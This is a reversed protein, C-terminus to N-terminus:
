AKGGFFRDMVGWALKSEAEREEPTLMQPPDPPPRYPEPIVALPHVPEKTFGNRNVVWAVAVGVRLWEAQQRATAMAALERLSM